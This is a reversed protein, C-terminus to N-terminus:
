KLITLTVQLWLRQGRGNLKYGNTLDKYIEIIRTKWAHIYITDSERTDDLAYGRANTVNGLWDTKNRSEVAHNSVRYKQDNVIFYYSDNTRTTTINNKNCFTEITAMKDKFDNMRAKSPKWAM